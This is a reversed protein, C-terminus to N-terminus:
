NDGNAIKVQLGIELTKQKQDSLNKDQKVTWADIFIRAMSM